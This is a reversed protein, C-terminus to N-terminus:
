QVEGFICGLLRDLADLTHIEYDPEFGPDPLLHVYETDLRMLRVTQIGLMRAGIFDKRPNDGVYITMEPKTGLQALIRKFPLTSPKWHERGLDDTYVISDFWSDLGLAKVKLRQAQANGDTLLGLQFLPIMRALAPEVDPYLGIDPEHSRYINVLHPILNNDSHIGLDQLLLNFTNGRVGKEYSTRLRSYVDAADIGFTKELYAAVVRFGSLVYKGEPYLTDDLDFLVANRLATSRM